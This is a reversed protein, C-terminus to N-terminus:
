PFRRRLMAGRPLRQEGQICSCAKVSCAELVDQVQDIARPFGDILFKASGSRLMAARLLRVTVGSPVLKGEKMATELDRCGLAKM